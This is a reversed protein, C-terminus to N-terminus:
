LDDRRKFVEELPYGHNMRYMITTRAVGTIRAWESISRREGHYTIYVCSPHDHTKKYEELHKSAKEKRVHGCSKVINRSVARLPYEVIAGCSCKCRVWVMDGWSKYKSDKPREIFELITLENFTQGIMDDAM